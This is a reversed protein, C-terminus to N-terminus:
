SAEEKITPRELRALRAEAEALKQTAEVAAAEAICRDLIEAALRDRLVTIVSEASVNFPNM